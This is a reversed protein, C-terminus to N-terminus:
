PTCAGIVSNLFDTPNVLDSRRKYPVAATTLLGSGSGSYMEFHLMPHPNTGSPNPNVLQAIFAITQGEAVLMNGAIGPAVTVEGYRIVGIGPHEVEIAFTGWYFTAVRTVKGAAVAKIESGLPAYLDCGAHKRGGARASGFSRPSVEYSYTDIWRPVPFIAM